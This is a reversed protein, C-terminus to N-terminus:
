LSLLLLSAVQDEECLVSNLSKHMQKYEDIDLDGSSDKDYYPCVGLLWWRELTELLVPHEALRDRLCCQAVVDCFPM